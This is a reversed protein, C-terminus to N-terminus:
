SECSASLQCRNTQEGRSPDAQQTFVRVVRRAKGKHGSLILGAALLASSLPPPKDSDEPMAGIERQFTDGAM